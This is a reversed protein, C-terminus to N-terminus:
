LKTNKKIMDAAKEAIMITPANTNGGVIRPMISADIVRLGDIGRVRLTADVVATDDGGMRCTGVPHYISDAQSRIFAEIEAETQATASRNLERGGYRAMSPQALVERMIRFGKVMRTLDEPHGLFNPDILPAALPDLSQLTVSGRSNPRLVCVHCSYGHGFTVKRGHDVLKGIVFHFQLDPIAEAPSSRVFGGAEAINTTLLGARHSRWEAIGRLIHWVGIFSVGLLDTLTPADYVQVADAHDHLNLGVGPLHHVVPIGLKSLADANGVGSLLLIQPSQLAGASLLVERRVRIRRLSSNHLFEAGVARRGEFLVRTVRANTEITLNSRGLNPALYAKAASFREGARHTVQYMGIGEQEAGNFDHNIPFGAERGADIFAQSYRNPSALDRVNLPGGVGHFEDGGRENNEARKFYPLVDEYAWGANGLEAWHDYDARHGRAYIMANISSSGGLVKGRPQYGTRGNLGRQPVTNFGWNATGTQAMVAMGSPCHILVSSDRVGAELLTVHTDREESLRGALACGASGAGLILYDTISDSM